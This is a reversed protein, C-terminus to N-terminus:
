AAPPVVREPMTTSATLLCERSCEVLLGSDVAFGPSVHVHMSSYFALDSYRIYKVPQASRQRINGNTSGRRLRKASPDIRSGM